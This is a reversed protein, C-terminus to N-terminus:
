SAKQNIDSASPPQSVIDDKPVMSLAGRKDLDELWLRMAEWTSAKMRPLTDPSKEM